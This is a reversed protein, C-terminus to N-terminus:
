RTSRKSMIGLTSISSSLFIRLATLYLVLSPAPPLDREYPAFCGPDM